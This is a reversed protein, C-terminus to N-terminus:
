DEEGTKIYLAGAGFRKRYKRAKARAVGEEYLQYYLSAGQPDSWEVQAGSMAKLKAIAGHALDDGYEELLDEPLSDATRKPRLSALAQFMAERGCARELRIGDAGYSFGSLEEGDIAAKRIGAIVAGKPLCLGIETDRAGIAECFSAEWAGTRKFFDVAVARLADMAMSKPCPLTQPLILPLLADM